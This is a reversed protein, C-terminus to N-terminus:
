SFPYTGVVSGTDPFVKRVKKREEIFFFKRSLKEFYLVISRLNEISTRLFLELNLHFFFLTRFEIKTHRLNRSM